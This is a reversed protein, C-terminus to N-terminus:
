HLCCCGKVHCSCKCINDHKLKKQFEVQLDHPLESIAKNLEDFDISSDENIYQSYTLSCCPMM